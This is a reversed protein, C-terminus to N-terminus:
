NKKEPHSVLHPSPSYQLKMLHETCAESIIKKAELETSLGLLAAMTLTQTEEQPITLCPALYEVGNAGLVAIKGEFSHCLQMITYLCAKILEMSGGEKLGDLISEIGIELVQRVGEDERCLSGLCYASFERARMEESKLLACITAVVAAEELLKAVIDRSKTLSNFVEAVSAPVSDVNSLLVQVLGADYLFERCPVFDLLKTIATCTKTKLEKDPESLLQLFVNGNPCNVCEAKLADDSISTVFLDLTKLKKQVPSQAEETALIRLLKAIYRRGYAPSIVDRPPPDKDINLDSNLDELFESTLHLSSQSTLPMAKTKREEDHTEKKESKKLLRCAAHACSFLDTRILVFPLYNLCFTKSAKM